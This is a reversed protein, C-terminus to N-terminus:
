TSAWYSVDYLGTSSQWERGHTWFDTRRLYGAEAIVDDLVANFYVLRFKGAGRKEAAGRLGALVARLTGPGFPHFMFVISADEPVHEEAPRCVFEIREPGNKCAMRNQECVRMLAPSIEVGISKRAGLENAMFVSRGLGCGYDIFVDDTALGVHRLMVQLDRYSSPAYVGQFDDDDPHGVAPIFGFTKVGLRRDWLEDSPNLLRTKLGAGRLNALRSLLANM